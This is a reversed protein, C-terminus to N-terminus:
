EIEVQPNYWYAICKKAWSPTALCTWYPWVEVPYPFRQLLEHANELKEHVLNYGRDLTYAQDSEHNIAIVYILM